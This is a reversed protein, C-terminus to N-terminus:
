PNTGLPDASAMFMVEPVTGTGPSWVNMMGTDYLHFNTLQVFRNGIQAFLETPPLDQFIDPRENPERVIKEGLVVNRSSPKLPHRVRGGAGNTSLHTDGPSDPGEALGTGDLNIRFVRWDQGVADVIHVFSVQDPGMFAPWLIRSIHLQSPPRPFSTVQRREGT